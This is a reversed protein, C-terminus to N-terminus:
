VLSYTITVTSSYTDAAQGSPITLWFGHYHTTVTYAINTEIVQSSTSLATASAEALNAYNSDTDMKLNSISFTESTNSGTFDTGYAEVKYEDNADITANLEGATQDYNTPTNSSSGASVTGFDLTAYNVTYSIYPSVTASVSVDDAGVIPLLTLLGVVVPIFYEKM